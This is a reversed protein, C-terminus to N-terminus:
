EGKEDEVKYLKIMRQITVGNDDYYEEIEERTINGDLYYEFLDYDAQHYSACEYIFM